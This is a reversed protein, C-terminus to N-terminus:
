ACARCPGVPSLGTGRACQFFVRPGVSPPVARRLSPPVAFRRVFKEQARQEDGPNKDPHYKMALTRYAKKIAPGDADRALGLVQYHNTNGHNRAHATSLAALLTLLLAALLRRPGRPAM